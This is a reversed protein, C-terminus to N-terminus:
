IDLVCKAEKNWWDFIKTLRKIIPIDYIDIIPVQISLYIFRYICVKGGYFACLYFLAVFPYVNYFENPVFFGLEVAFHMTQCLFAQNSM